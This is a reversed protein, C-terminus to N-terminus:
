GWWCRRSCGLWCGCGYRIRLLVVLVLLALLLLLLLSTFFVLSMTIVFLIVFLDVYLYLSRLDDLQTSRQGRGAGFYFCEARGGAAVPEDLEIVFPDELLDADVPVVVRELVGVGVLGPEAVEM